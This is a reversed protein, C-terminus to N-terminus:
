KLLEFSKRFAEAKPGAVFENSGSVVVQYLRDNAVVLLYRLRPGAASDVTLERAPQKDPGFTAEKEAVVKGRAGIGKAAEVLLKAPDYKKATIDSWIVLRGGEADEHQTVTITLESGTKVPRKVETPLAPFDAAFKGAPSTFKGNEYTNAAPPQALALVPLLGLLPLASRM